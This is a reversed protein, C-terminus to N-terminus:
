KQLSNSVFLFSRGDSGLLKFVFGFNVSGIFFFFFTTANQQRRNLYKIRTEIYIMRHHGDFRYIQLYKEHAARKMKPDEFCFSHFWHIFFSCLFLVCQTFRFSTEVLREDNVTFTEIIYSHTYRKFLSYFIQPTSPIEQNLQNQGAFSVNELVCKWKLCVCVGVSLSLHVM